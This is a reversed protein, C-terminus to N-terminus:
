VHNSLSVMVIGAGDESSLFAHRGKESEMGRYELINEAEVLFVRDTQRDTQRRLNSVM